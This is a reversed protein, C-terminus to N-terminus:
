KEQWPPIKQGPLYSIYGDRAIFQIVYTGPLVSIFSDTFSEQVYLPDFTESQVLRVRESQSRTTILELAIQFSIGQPEPSIQFVGAFDAPSKARRLMACFDEVTAQDATSRWCFKELYTGATFLRPLKYDRPETFESSSYSWFWELLAAREDPVTLDKFLRFRTGVREPPLRVPTLPIPTTLGKSVQVLQRLATNSYAVLYFGSRLEVPKNLPLWVPNSCGGKKPRGNAEVECRLAVGSDPQGPGPTGIMKIFGFDNMEGPLKLVVEGPPNKPPEYTLGDTGSGHSGGREAQIASREGAISVGSLTMTLLITLASASLKSLSMMWRRSPNTVLEM